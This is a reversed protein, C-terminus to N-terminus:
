GGWATLRDVRMWSLGVGPATRKRVDQTVEAGRHGRDQHICGEEQFPGPVDETWLCRLVRGSEHMAQGQLVQVVGGTALPDGAEIADEDVIGWRGVPLTM